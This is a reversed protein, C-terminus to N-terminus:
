IMFIEGEQEIRTTPMYNTGYYLDFRRYDKGAYIDLWCNREKLSAGTIDLYALTARVIGINMFTTVTDIIRAGSVNSLIQEAKILVREPHHWDHSRRTFFAM